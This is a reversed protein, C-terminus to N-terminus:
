EARAPAGPGGGSPTGARGAARSPRGRGRLGKGRDPPWRRQQRMRRQGTSAGGLLLRFVGRAGCRETSSPFRTFAWPPCFMLGLHSPRSLCPCSAAELWAREHLKAVLSYSAHEADAAPLSALHAHLQAALEEETPGSAQGGGSSAAAVLQRQARSAFASFRRATDQFDSSDILSDIMTLSSVPPVVNALLGSPVPSHNAPAKRLSYRSLSNPPLFCVDYRGSRGDIRPRGVLAGRHGNGRSM